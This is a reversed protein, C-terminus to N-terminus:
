NVWAHLMVYSGTKSFIGKYIFNYEPVINLLFFKIEELHSPTHYVTIAIKPKNKSILKKAGQIAKFDFGELDIKIYTIPIDLELFLHDLTTVIIQNSNETPFDVLYSSIGDDVINCIYNSDSLAKDIITVNSLNKFTIDLCNIFIKLPEIVYVHKARECCSLAFLGEASGCDVVFDNKNVRTQPIEYYHWNKKDFTELITQNLSQENYTKPYILQNKLGHFSISNFSNNYIDKKTIYKKVTIYHPLRFLFSILELLSVKNSNNFYHNLVKIRPSYLFKTLM